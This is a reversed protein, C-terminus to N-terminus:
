GLRERAIDRIAARDIKRSRGSEPLDMILIADPQAEDDIRSPGDRLERRVRGEVEAPSAGPEIELALVIREDHRKSDYVGVLACRRVGSIREILPEHLEPYINHRGRIMMDKKRGLLVIRGNDITALDGTSHERVPTLGLYGSFLNRGCLVLEGDASIRAEVGEVPAGVIDGAGYYALKEEISIAAVPLMETMGYLSWAVAGRPMIQRFGELFAAHVPAAGIFAHRLSSPLNSGVSLAHALLEQCESTVGFFHTVRNKALDGLTRGASYKGFPPIVARAGAMLAPLILHIEGAYMTDDPGMATKRSIIDLTAAMSRRSHVAAKPAATTGSTFVILVPAEPDGAPPSDILDNAAGAREVAGLSLPAISAPLRFGSRVIRAGEIKELPLFSRGRARFFRRVARSRSAALLLSEAIIWRPRLMEMRRAFLEEGVGLDAVVLTGGAEVVGLMAAIATATPRIAFLVREGALLGERRLGRAIRQARRVIQDRPTFSGDPDVIGSHPGAPGSATLQELLSNDEM